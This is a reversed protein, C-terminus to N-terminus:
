KCRHTKSCNSEFNKRLGNSRQVSALARSGKSEANSESLNVIGPESAVGASPIKEEVRKPAGGLWSPLSFSIFYKGWGLWAADKYNDLAESARLKPSYLVLALIAVLVFSGLSVRWKSRMLKM